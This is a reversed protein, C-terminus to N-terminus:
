NKFKPGKIFLRKKIPNKFMKKDVWIQVNKILIINEKLRMQKIPIHNIM